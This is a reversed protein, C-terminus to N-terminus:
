SEQDDRLRWGEYRQNNARTITAPLMTGDTTLSSFAVDFRRHGCGVRDRLGNKTEGNTLKVAAAVIEKRDAELQEARKAERGAERRDSTATKIDSSDLVTVNWQRDVGAQYQGEDVDLGWLGGHGASGGVSLHLRHLGSGPEYAERRSLLLWQRAMEAFGSWSIASLEVPQFDNGSGKKVHHLLVL